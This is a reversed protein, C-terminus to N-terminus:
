AFLDDDYQHEFTRFAEYASTLPSYLLLNSDTSVDRTPLVPGGRNLFHSQCGEPAFCSVVKVGGENVTDLFLSSRGAHKWNSDMPYYNVVVMDSNTLIDTGYAKCAFEVGQRHAKVFDGVFLGVIKKKSNIVTNLIIDLGAMRAAEESDLRCPNEPTEAWFPYVLGHHNCKITEYGAVGPLIIKSGGGFYWGPNPTIGGIGIKLDYEMVFKNLHIPTGRSTTGLDVLNRDPTHNIVEVADVVSRGLKKIIDVRTLLRHGGVAMVILTNGRKIGGRNLEELVYPIIKYVPTPRDLDDVLIVAKSRQTALESISPMGIPSNIIDQIEFDNLPPFSKQHQVNVIWNDPFSLAVDKDDYWSCVPIDVVM